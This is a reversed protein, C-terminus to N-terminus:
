AMVYPRLFSPLDEEGKSVSLIIHLSHQKSLTELQQFFSMLESLDAHVVNELKDVFVYELDFDSACLGCLFGLFMVPDSLAYDTVNIFRISYGLDYMYSNDDDIFVMSGKAKDSVGNALSIIRKTKGTGKEGCIIEIM